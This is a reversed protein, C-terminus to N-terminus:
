IRIPGAGPEFSEIELTAKDVLRHALDVLARASALEEGIKPVNPDSPNRRARGWGSYEEDEIVVKALAETTDETEELEVDVKLTKHM